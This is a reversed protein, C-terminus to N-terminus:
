AFFEYFEKFECAVLPLNPYLPLIEIGRMNGDIHKWVYQDSQSVIAQSLPEASQSTGIGGVITGPIAPYVYKLGYFIFEYLAMKLVKNLPSLLRADRSRSLSNSVESLSIKLHFSLDQLKFKDEHYLVIFVLIPVDHPRMINSKKM